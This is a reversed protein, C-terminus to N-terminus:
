FNLGNDAKFNEGEDPETHTLHETLTDVEKHTSEFNLNETRKLHFDQEMPALRNKLNRIKISNNKGRLVAYSSTARNLLYQNGYVDDQTVAHGGQQAKRMHHIAWFSCNYSKRTRDVFDLYPQVTEDSSIPGRLASGISDIFVINPMTNDMLSILHQQGLPENLAWPEGHPVLIFNEALLARESDTLDENMKVLFQKLSGHDMELSLFIVKVAQKIKYHLYDKGLALHIMFQLSVQTKGVGSPGVLLMSGNEMIMPEILWDINIETDLFSQFDYAFTFAEEPTEEQLGPYKNRAVDVMHALRRNRDKRDKFKGVKNDLMLLMAFVEKNTMGMECCGYALNMLAASRDPYNEKGLLLVMDPPFPYKLIIDQVNPLVTIDWEEHTSVPVPALTNFLEVDYRTDNSYHVSVPLPPNYKYNLTEPPRLVRTADWSGKDAGLNYAVRRNLDELADADTLPEILRWYCHQKTEISSQVILSPEGHTDYEWEPANGDFDAWIVNTGAFFKKDVRKANYVVPGMYVEFKRAAKPILDLMKDAQAPWEFFEQHWEKQQNPPKVAVYIYGELGEYLFSLFSELSNADPSAVSEM